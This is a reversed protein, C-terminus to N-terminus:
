CGDPFLRKLVAFPSHSTNDGTTASYPITRKNLEPHRISNCERCAAVINGHKTKGGAHKPVPHHDASCYRMGNPDDYTMPQKCWYCLGGQARAAQNRLARLLKVGSVRYPRHKRSM